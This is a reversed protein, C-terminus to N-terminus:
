NSQLYHCIDQVRKEIKGTIEEADFLRELMRATKQKQYKKTDWIKTRVIYKWYDKFKFYSVGDETHCDVYYM